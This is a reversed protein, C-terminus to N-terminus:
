PLFVQAGATLQRHHTEVATRKWFAHSHSCVCRSFPMSPTYGLGTWGCRSIYTTDALDFVSPLFDPLNLVNDPNASNSKSAVTCTWGAGNGGNMPTTTTNSSVSNLWLKFFFLHCAQSLTLKIFLIIGPFFFTTKLSHNVSLSFSHSWVIHEM